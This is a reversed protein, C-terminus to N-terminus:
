LTMSSFRHTQVGNMMHGHGIKANRISHCLFIFKQNFKLKLCSTLQCPHFVKGCLIPCTHSNFFFKELDWILNTKPILLGMNEFYSKLYWVKDFNIIKFWEFTRSFHKCTLFTTIQLKYSPKFFQWLFTVFTDHINELINTLTMHKFFCIVDLYTAQYLMPFINELAIFFILNWAWKKNHKNFNILKHSNSIQFKLLTM